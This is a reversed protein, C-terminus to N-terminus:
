AHRRQQFHRDVFINKTGADRIISLFYALQDTESRESAFFLGFLRLRSKGEGLGPPSV